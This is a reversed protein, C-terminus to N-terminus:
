LNRLRQDILKSETSGKASFNLIKDEIWVAEKKLHVNEFGFSQINKTLLLFNEEDPEFALIEADPHRRKMYIVSLGINAGCDIIYPQAPLEQKYIEDVFIEKLGHLLETANIFHLDKGFLRISAPKM